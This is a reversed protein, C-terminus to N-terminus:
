ARNESTLTEEVAESKAYELLRKRITKGLGAAKFPKTIYADAGRDFAEVIDGEQAKCTLMFVPIGLTRENAKLRSLLELGDM